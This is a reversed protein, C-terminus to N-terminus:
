SRGVLRRFESPTLGTAARFQRALHPHDAYGSAYAIRSIEHRTAQLAGAARRLRERRRYSTITCGYHRRFARSVSVPHAGVLDALERVSVSNPLHDDVAQRVRKVWDPPDVSVPGDSALAGLADLVADELEDDAREGDARGDAEGSVARENRRRAARHLVLMPRAAASGHLWRWRGLLRGAAGAGLAARPDFAVQLTRAGCPGVEDVHEVGVPKAVVSLSTGLEERSGSRERIAGSLMLTVSAGDHAHLPQRHGPAYVIERLQFPGVALTRGVHVTDPINMPVTVDTGTHPRRRSGWRRVMRCRRRM